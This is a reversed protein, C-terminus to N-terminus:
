QNEPVSPWVSEFPHRADSRLACLANSAGKTALIDGQHAIGVKRHKRVVVVLERAFRTPFPVRLLKQRQNYLALARVPVFSIGMGLSVALWHRRLFAGQGFFGFM